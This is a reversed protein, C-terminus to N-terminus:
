ATWKSSSATSSPGQETVEAIGGPCDIVTVKPNNLAPLYEDHFCPRKCLYRYYPKLIERHGPRDRAEDVRRRHEEMIGYDVEEGSRVFEEITMGKWRPPHHVAAYHHTWGDDTLDEDVPRGLMVAQFNDMRDQQWGPTLGEAFSPDTTRNGREGIASPTRQFV